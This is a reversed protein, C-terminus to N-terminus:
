PAQEPDAVYDAVLQALEGYFRARHTGASRLISSLYQVFVGEEFIRDGLLQQAAEFMAQPVVERVGGAHMDLRIDVDHRGQTASPFVRAIYAAAGALDGSVIAMDAPGGVHQPAMSLFDVRAGVRAFIDEITGDIARFIASLNQAGGRLAAPEGWTQTLIAVADALASSSESAM